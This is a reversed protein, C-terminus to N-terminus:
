QHTNSDSVFPITHQDYCISSHGPFFHSTTISVHFDFTYLVLTWPISTDESATRAFTSGSHTQQPLTTSSHLLTDVLLSDVSSATCDVSTLQLTDPHTTTFSNHQPHPVSSFNTPSSPQHSSPTDLNDSQFDTTFSFDIQLCDRSSNNFDHTPQKPQLSCTTSSSARRRGGM